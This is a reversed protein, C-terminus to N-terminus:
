HKAFWMAEANIYTDLEDPSGPNPVNRLGADVVNPAVKRGTTPIFVYNDKMWTLIQNFLKRGQASEPPYAKWASELNYFTQIYAPPKRGQKGNTTYYQWTAPSWAGKQNPEFDESMGNAWSPGDNWALAAQVQNAAARQNFLTGQVNELQVNIGVAGLEQRLLEAVPNFDAAAPAYTIRLVFPKGDPGRRFGTSSVRKMGLADLLRNALAPDHNTNNFFPKGYLGFYVSKNIDVPDMAAAVAQGFRHQPDSVLQQWVSHPQQYQDDHNLFLNIPNNFSGTLFVRLHSRKANQVYVPMKDLNAEGGSAITVQGALTANTQADTDGVINNVVKDIYPLQRGQADVHWFYPNRQYVVQTDTSKAVVWANLVPLGLAAPEGMSWHVVDKLTLLQVWSAMHNQKVLQALKQPNAYKKHFQKLYHAPKFIIDYYPVWSNLDAIFYGYPKGFQLEFTYPDIVKLTAHGLNCNGQTCLYIPWARQVAPDEYIDQFTFRADETTVPVGDSWRLGKRITFRFTKYDASHSFASVINPLSAETTQGPSRLITAGGAINLFGDPFTPAATITGGYQGNEWHMYTNQLLVGPGVVFPQAPLRKNIPPLKGAAVLPALMPPEIYHGPTSAGQKVQTTAAPAITASSSCVLLVLGFSVVWHSVRM